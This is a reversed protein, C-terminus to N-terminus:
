KAGDFLKLYGDEIADVASMIFGYIREGGVYDFPATARYILEGDFYFRGFPLEIAAADDGCGKEGVAIPCIIEVQSNQGDVVLTFDMNVNDGLITFYLTMGDRDLDCHLGNDDFFKVIDDYLKLANNDYCM